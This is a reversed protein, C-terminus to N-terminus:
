VGPVELTPHGSEGNEDQIEVYEVVRMVAIQGFNGDLSILDGVDFNKRFEYRSTDSLDTRTLTVRNQSELAQRARVQMKNVIDTLAAGSPAASLHGDIDDGDVIMSRRKDRTAGPTDYVTNVYRGLVVASNKMKKDSFLYDAKDIDGSKWSFIVSSSKNAGRHILMNTQTASGDPTGFTNRRINKIGLDDIALLEVVSKHLEGRKFSRAESIGTGTVNTIPVINWLLDDGYSLNDIHDYLLSVIQNWTYDAALAYEAILSSTRIQPMGVIRNELISEFSRGTIIIEPDENTGEKIEHNEVIMIEYTDAHSIYSSIPLFERLGSSLQAVIEFEGPDRYREAWMISRANNIMSGEVFVTANPDTGSLLKFLEM